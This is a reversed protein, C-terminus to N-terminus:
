LSNTFSRVSARLFLAKGAEIKWALSVRAREWLTSTKQSHSPCEGYGHPFIEEALLVERLRNIRFAHLQVLRHYAETSLVAKVDDATYSSLPPHLLYKSAASAISDLGYQTALGYVQLPSISANALLHENLSDIISDALLYKDGLMFLTPLMPLPIVSTPEYERVRIQTTMKDQEESHPIRSPLPPPTHLLRLLATLMESSEELDLSGNEDTASCCSFMDGSLFARM